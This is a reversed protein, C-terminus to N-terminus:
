NDRTKPREQWQTGKPKSPAAPARGRTIRHNIVAVYYQADPDSARQTPSVFIDFEGLAGHEFRHITSLRTLEGDARFTLSFCEGDAQAESACSEVEVLRLTTVLVGARVKFDTNVHPKFTALTFQFPRESRAEQPVQYLGDVKQPRFPTQKEEQAFVKEFTALPLTAILAAHAGARLFKRRTLPM